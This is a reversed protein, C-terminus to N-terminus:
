GAEDADIGLISMASGVTYTSGTILLTGGQALQFGRRLADAVLGESHLQPPSGLARSVIMPDWSRAEPGSRPTTLVIASAFEFLEPVMSAWDKDALIGVVAVVPQPLDMEALTLLLAQVGAPNHATDLVCTTGGVDEVQLRGPWRVSECGRVAADSTPRLDNPLMDALRLALAANRAQHAGALPLRIGVLGGDSLAVSLRTGDPGDTTRISRPDIPVFPAGIERCLEQLVALAESNDVTTLLPVGEKIIGGKETAIDRIEEGLFETHDRHINTIATLVPAVVNTADLRGGLGVEVIALDVELQRFVEFALITAAEFYTAGSDRVESEVVTAASRLLADPVPRGDVRIREPFRRLHPSTYLGVNRGDARMVSSLIAATSGKGNTGAIHVSPYSCQPSGVASLVAEIRHLGLEMAVPLPGFLDELEPGDSPLEVTASDPPAEGEGEDISNPSV